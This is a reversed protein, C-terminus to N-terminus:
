FVLGIKRLRNPAPVAGFAAGILCQRQIQHWRFIRRSGRSGGVHCFAINVSEAGVYNFTSSAAETASSFQCQGVIYLHDGTVTSSVMRMGQKFSLRVRPAHMSCAWAKRWRSFTDPSIITASLPLVSPETSSLSLSHHVHPAHEQGHTDPPEPRRLQFRGATLVDDHAVGILAIIKARQERRAFAARLTRDPSRSVTKPTADRWSRHRKQM